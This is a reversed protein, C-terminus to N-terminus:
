NDYSKWLLQYLNLVRYSQLHNALCITYCLSVPSVLPSQLLPCPVQLPFLPLLPFSCSVPYLSALSPGITNLLSFLWFLLLSPYVISFNHCTLLPCLTFLTSLHFVQSRIWNGKIDTSLKRNTKTPTVWTWLPSFVTFHPLLPFSVDSLLLSHHLGQPFSLPLLFFVSLTSKSLFFSFIVCPCLFFWIQFLSCRSFESYLTVWWRMNHYLICM